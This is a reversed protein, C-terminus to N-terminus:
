CFSYCIDRIVKYTDKTEM